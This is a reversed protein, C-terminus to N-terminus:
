YGLLPRQSCHDTISFHRSKIRYQKCNSAFLCINRTTQPQQLIKSTRMLRHTPISLQYIKRALFIKYKNMNRDGNCSFFLPPHPPPLHPVDIPISNEFFIILPEIGRQHRISKACLASENASAYERIILFSLHVSGNVRTGVPSWLTVLGSKWM